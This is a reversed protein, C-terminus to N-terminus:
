YMASGSNHKCVQWVGASTQRFREQRSALIDDTFRQGAFVDVADDSALKLLREPTFMMLCASINIVCPAKHM